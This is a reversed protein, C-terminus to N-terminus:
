WKMPIDNIKGKLADISPLLGCLEAYQEKNPSFEGECEESLIIFKFFGHKMAYLKIEEIEDYTYFGNRKEMALLEDLSFNKMNEETEKLNDNAIKKSLVTIGEGVLSGILGGTGYFREGKGGVCIIAIRRDTFFLDFRNKSDRSVVVDRILAIQRESTSM